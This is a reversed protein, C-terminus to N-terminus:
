VEPFRALGDRIMQEKQMVADLFGAQSLIDMVANGAACVVPGGGFTTAHDGVKIKAAVETSVLVVSLPLGGAIGKATTIIDPTVGLYQAFWMTGTRGLGTQVEDFILLAGKKRCEAELAQYFSAEAMNVGGISQIPEVIVAATEETIAAKTAAIDGLEVFTTYSDFDPHFQHYSPLGTVAVTTMSRGHFAHHFSVLKTRGMHKRAIKIATENAESGSNAFYVRYSAPLLTKALKEALDAAPATDFINSYFMLERSQKEVAAIIEPVCHGMLCVAHGGYFDLYKKGESDWVYRGEGRVLELPYKVYTQICYQQAKELTTM